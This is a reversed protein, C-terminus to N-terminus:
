LTYNLRTQVLNLNLNGDAGILGSQSHLHVLLSFAFFAGFDSGIGLRFVLQLCLATSGGCWESYGGSHGLVIFIQVIYGAWDALLWGASLADIPSSPRKGLSEEM